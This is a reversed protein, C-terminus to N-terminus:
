SRKILKGIFGAVIFTIAYVALYIVFDEIGMRIIQGNILLTTMLIAGIIGASKFSLQAPNKKALIIISVLFIVVLAILHYLDNGTFLGLVFFLTYSIIATIISWNFLDYIM